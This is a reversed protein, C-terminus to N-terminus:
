VKIKIKLLFLSVPKAQEKTNHSIFGLLFLGLALSRSVHVWAGQFM